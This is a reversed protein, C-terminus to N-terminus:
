IPILKNFHDMGDFLSSILYVYNQLPALYMIYITMSGIRYVIDGRLGCKEAHFKLFETDFSRLTNKLLANLSEVKKERM